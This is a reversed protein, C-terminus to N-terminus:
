GVRLALRDALEGCLGPQLQDALIAVEMGAPLARAASRLKLPQNRVRRVTAEVAHEDVV